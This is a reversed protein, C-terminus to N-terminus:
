AVYAPDLMLCPSGIAVVVQLLSYGQGSMAAGSIYVM